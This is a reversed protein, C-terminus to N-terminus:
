GRDARSVQRVPHVLHVAGPGAPDAASIAVPKAFTRKAGTFRTEGRGNSMAHNQLPCEGGKDCMPCDLPHNILHFEMMGRQAKDAVPSTLQTHVVMGDTCITACSPPPKPQGKIEM